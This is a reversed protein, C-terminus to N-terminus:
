ELVGGFGFQWIFRAELIRAPEIALRATRAARGVAGAAEESASTVCIMRSTLSRGDWASARGAATFSLTESSVATRVPPSDRESSVNESRVMVRRPASVIKLKLLAPRVAFSSLPEIRRRTGFSERPPAMVVFLTVTAMVPVVTMKSDSAAPWLLNIVSSPRQRRERTFSGRRTRLTRAPCISSTGGPAAVSERGTSISRSSNIFVCGSM